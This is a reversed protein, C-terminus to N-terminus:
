LKKLRHECAESWYARQPSARRLSTITYTKSGSSSSCFSLPSPFIISESTFSPPPYSLFLFIIISTATHYIFLTRPAPHVCRFGYLQALYFCAVLLHVDEQVERDPQGEEEYYELCENFRAVADDYLGRGMSVLGAAVLYQKAKDAQDSKHYHRALLLISDDTSFGEQKRKRRTRQYEEAIQTHLRRAQSQLMMDYIIQQTQNDKFVFRVDNVASEDRIVYDKLTGNLVDNVDARPGPYTSALVSSEFSAGIASAIKLIMQDQMSLNGLQAVVVERHNGGMSMNALSDIFSMRKAHEAEPIRQLSLLVSRLFTLSGGCSRYISRSVSDDVDLTARFMSTVAEVPLATLDMPVAVDRFSNVDQSLLSDGTRSAAVMALPPKRRTLRGIVQWAHSSLNELGDIMIVFSSANHSSCKEAVSAIIEVILDCELSLTRNQRGDSAGLVVGLETSHIRLDSHSLLHTAVRKVLGGGDKPSTASALLAADIDDDDEISYRDLSIRKSRAEGITSAFYTTVMVSVIKSWFKLPDEYHVAACPIVNRGEKELVKEAENLLRTKGIGPEGRLHVACFEDGDSSLTVLELLERLEQERGVMPAPADNSSDEIYKPEFFEVPDTYGKVKMPAFSTFAPPSASPFWPRLLTRLRPFFPPPANTITAIIIKRKRKKQLKGYSKDLSRLFLGHLVDNCLLNTKKGECMCMLRAALNVSPGMIAYEKRYDAGVFGCYAKGGTVGVRPTLNQKKLAEIVDVATDLSRRASDFFAQMPLGFSWIIVAGKDDQIFQRMMGGHHEIRKYAAEFCQQVTKLGEPGGASLADSLGEVMCFTVIVNERQECLTAVANQEVASRAVSHVYGHLASTGGDGALEKRVHSQKSQQAELLQHTVLSPALASLPPPPPEALAELLYNSGYEPVERPSCVFWESVLKLTQPSICVEGTEACHEAAGFQEVADGAVFFEWHSEDGVRFANVEGVGVGSHIRLERKVEEIPYVACKDNLDLACRCAAASALKMSEDDVVDKDLAWACIVADGAFRLVDGGNEVIVDILKTFYSNIHFQLRDVELLTCLNTFGSIDVFLLASWSSWCSPELVREDGAARAAELAVGIEWHSVAPSFAAFQQKLKDGKAVRRRQRRERLLGPAGEGVTSEVAASVVVISSRSTLPMSHLRDNAGLAEMAKTRDFKHQHRKPSTPAWSPTRAISSLAGGAALDVGPDVPPADAPEEVVLQVVGGGSTSSESM